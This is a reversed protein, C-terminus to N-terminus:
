RAAYRGGAGCGTARARAGDARAGAREDTGGGRGEEVDFERRLDLMEEREDEGRRLRDRSDEWESRLNAIAREKEALQASHQRNLRRENM